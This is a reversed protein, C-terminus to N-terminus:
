QMPSPLILKDEGNSGISKLRQKSYQNRTSDLHGGQHWSSLSSNQVMVNVQRPKPSPSRQTVANNLRNRLYKHHM